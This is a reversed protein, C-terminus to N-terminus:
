NWKEYIEETCKHTYAHQLGLLLRYDRNSRHLESLFSRIISNTSHYDNLCYIKLNKFLNILYILYIKLKVKLM